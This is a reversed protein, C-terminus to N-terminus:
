QHWPPRGSIHEINPEYNRDKLIPGVPQNIDPVTEFTKESIVAQEVGQPFGPTRITTESSLLTATEYRLQVLANALALRFDVLQSEATTLQEESQITEFMTTAGRRFKERMDDFSKRFAKVAKLQTGVDNALEQLTDASATVNAAISSSLDEMNIIASNLDAQASIVGGEGINNAFPWGVQASISADLGM